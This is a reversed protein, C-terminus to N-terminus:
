KESDTSVTSKIKSNTQGTNLELDINESPNKEQDDITTEKIKKNSKEDNTVDRVDTIEIHGDHNNEHSEENHINSKKTHPEDLDEDDLDFDANIM